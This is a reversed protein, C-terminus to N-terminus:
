NVLNATAPIPIGHTTLLRGQEAILAHAQELRKYAAVLLKKMRAIKDARADAASGTSASASGATPTVASLGASGAPPRGTPTAVGGLAQQPLQHPLPQSPTPNPLPM